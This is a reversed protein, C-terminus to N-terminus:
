PASSTEAPLVRAPPFAQALSAPEAHTDQLAEKYYINVIYGAYKRESPPEGQVPRSQIYGVELVEVDDDSWDPPPSSWRTTVQADTRDVQRNALTDYFLVQVTVDRVDIRARPKAQLPVRLVVKRLATPDTEDSSSIKGLGLKSDAALGVSDGPIPTGGEGRPMDAAAQVTALLQTARLKAEAAAYYVGAAAGMEYVKRWHEAAKDPQVMREYTVALEALPLANGPDLVQAERLRTLALHLDGRDRLTRAQEIIETFRSEPSPETGEGTLVAAAGKRLAIEAIPRPKPLATVSPIAPAADAFPDSFDRPVGPVASEGVRPLAAPTAKVSSGAVIPTTRFQRAFAYVVGGVQLAAAAGLVSVAVAFTRGPSLPSRPLAPLTRM